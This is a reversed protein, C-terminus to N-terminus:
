LFRVSKYQQPPKEKKLSFCYGLMFEHSGNNYGSIETTSFDFAYGIRLGSFLEFGVMGIIAEGTRYSVGGWFKKNYMLISSIFLQNTVLDSSVIVSPHFEWSPNPLELYYGGTLYYHHRYHTEYLNYYPTQNLHTASFGFYMEDNSYFLGAGFDFNMANQQTQPVAADGTVGPFNWNPNLTNNIVGGNIGVALMGGSVKFRAAYSLNIGLDKNFGFQDNQINLGIGSKFGFPSIAANINVVSVNPSGEGFGVWQLRNIATACIMGSSGAYAPNIAMQNFMNHSFLPDQQAWITFSLCCLVIITFIKRM